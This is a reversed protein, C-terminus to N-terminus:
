KKVFIAIAALILAVVVIIIAYTTLPAVTREITVTESDVNGATDQATITVVNTGEGLTASSTFSGDTGLTVTGSAAGGVQIWAKVYATGANYTEWTDKTVRGTIQISTKDTSTGTAPSSITVDPATIDALVYGYLTRASENGATDTLSLEVSTAEGTAIDTVSISWRGDTGVTATTTPTNEGGLYLKVTAGAEAGSGTLSISRSMQVKPNAVGSGYFPNEAQTPALATPATTDIYFRYSVNENDLHLNDNVRIHIFYTGTPLINDPHWHNEYVGTLGSDYTANNDLNDFAVYVGEQDNLFSNDNDLKIVLNDM